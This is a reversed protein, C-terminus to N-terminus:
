VVFPVCVKLDRIRESLVGLRVGEVVVNKATGAHM